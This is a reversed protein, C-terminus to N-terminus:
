QPMVTSETCVLCVCVSVCVLSDYQVRAVTDERRQVMLGDLKDLTLCTWWFGLCM